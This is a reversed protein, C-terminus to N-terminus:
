KRTTPKNKEVDSVEKLVEQFGESRCRKAQSFTRQISRDKLSTSMTWRHSPRWSRSPFSSLLPRCPEQAEERIAQVKPHQSSSPFPNLSSQFPVMVLLEWSVLALLRTPHYHHQDDQYLSRCWDLYSWSHLCRWHIPVEQRHSQRSFSFFLFPFGVMLRVM